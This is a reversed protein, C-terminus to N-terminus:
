GEPQQGPIPKNKKGDTVAGQILDRLVASAPKGHQKKATRKFDNWLRVDIMFTRTKKAMTAM